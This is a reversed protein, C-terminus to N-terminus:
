LSRRMGNSASPQPAILAILPILISRSPFSTSSDSIGPPASTQSGWMRFSSAVSRITLSDIVPKGLLDPDLLLLAIRDEVFLLDELGVALVDGDIRLLDINGYPLDTALLNHFHVCEGTLEGRFRHILADFDKLVSSWGKVSELPLLPIGRGKKIRNLLSHCPNDM